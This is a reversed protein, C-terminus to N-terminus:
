VGLLVPIVIPRKATQQFLYKSVNDTVVQKVYDFNIPHMGEVTEEITKKIIYRTQQLLDQSERLYVFGRSIIDPSKKLKGTSTNISAILVFMGDQALMQRDRIVVEQIDGVSFGDVMVMGSPAKEKLRVLKTGQDRIEIITGNDPIIIHDEPMGLAEIAQAHLRLMYHNGHVPMFFHPKVKKFMWELEGRNGHGSSHIYVDSTRYHIIKVGQRALNDKLKQVTKENGPIISSSLLVTDRKNLKLNKHSKTAMRMLAAFEEGQAGTALVIVRDPPYSEIDQSNIITDRKITLMGALKAVEINTKMSRGEVVIKKGYREAIEIIKIMREMQSAFTGIILRGKI